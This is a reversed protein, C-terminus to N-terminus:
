RSSTSGLRAVFPRRWAILRGVRSGRQGANLRARHLAQLEARELMDEQERIQGLETIEFGNMDTAGQSNGANDSAGGYAVDPASALPLFALPRLIQALSRCHEALDGRSDALVDGRELEAHEALHEAGVTRVVPQGDVVEADARHLRGRQDGIAAEVDVRLVPDLLEGGGIEDGDRGPVRVVLWRM